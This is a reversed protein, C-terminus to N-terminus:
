RTIDFLHSDIAGNTKVNTLTVTTADGKKELMKVSSVMTLEPNFQVEIVEYLQKLEKKKPYMKAFYTSGTQYLELTFDSTNRLGAGTICNLIIDTIQRFMKNGKVDISKTSKASKLQVKDDNLIFTYDYPALYQWRLKSPRQFYMKGNSKMDTSLLEMTKTQTFECQMSAMESAAKDIRELIQKQQEATLQTQAVTTLPLSIFLSLMFFAIYRESKAIGKWVREMLKTNNYGIRNMIYRIREMIYGLGKTTM